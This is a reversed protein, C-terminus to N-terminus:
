APMVQAHWVLTRERQPLNILSATIQVRDGVIKIEDLALERPDRSLNPDTMVRHCLDPGRLTRFKRFIRLRTGCALVPLGRISLKVMLIATVGMHCTM